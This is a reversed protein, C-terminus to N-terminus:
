KDKPKKCPPVPVAACVPKSSAGAGPLPDPLPVPTPVEPVTIVPPDVPIEPPTVPVTVPPTDPVDVPPTVPTAPVDPTTVGPVRPDERKPADSPILPSTDVKPPGAAVGPRTQPANTTAQPAAGSDKPDDRTKSPARANATRAPVTPNQISGRIGAAALGAGIAIAAKRRETADKSRLARTLTKSCLKPRLSCTKSILEALRDCGVSPVGNVEICPEGAVEREKVVTKTDQWTNVGIALAVSAITGIGLVVLIAM